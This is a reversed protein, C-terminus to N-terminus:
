RSYSIARSLREVTDVRKRMMLVQTELESLTRSCACRLEVLLEVAWKAFSDSFFDRFKEIPVSVVDIKTIEHKKELKVKKYCFTIYLLNDGKYYNKRPRRVALIQGSGAYVYYPLKWEEAVKRDTTVEGDESRKFTQLRNKIGRCVKMTHTDLCITQDEKPVSLIIDPSLELTQIECFDDNSRYVLLEKLPVFGRLERLDISELTEKLLSDFEKKSLEELNVRSRGLVLDLKAQALSKSEDVSAM